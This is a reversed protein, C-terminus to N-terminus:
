SNVDNKPRGRKRKPKVIPEYSNNPVFTVFNILSNIYQIINNLGSKM